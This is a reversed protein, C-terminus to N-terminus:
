VGTFWVMEGVARIFWEERDEEPISEVIGRQSHGFHHMAIALIHSDVVDELFSNCPTFNHLHDSTM